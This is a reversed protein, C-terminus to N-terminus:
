KVARFVKFGDRQCVRENAFFVDNLVREYPLHANAVMWLVGGRRLAAFAQEVFAAGIGADTAKGEHFPPNMVVFDLRGKMERPLDEARTIDAWVAQVGDVNRACLDVARKDADLACLMKAGREMVARSLYGYGCGFDAGRGKLEEPLHAALLASGVDIKDWGFVGPQSVYDGGLIEQVAGRTLAAEVAAESYHGVDAYVVRCKNRSESVGTEVGFEALMKVLRGGGAKNDAAVVLVGNTDLAQLGRAVLYRAEVMNKPVAVLCIDAGSLSADDSVVDFGRAALADAYPKFSQVCVVGEFDALIEHVQANFFVARKGEANLVGSTFPYFLTELVLNNMIAVIYRVGM